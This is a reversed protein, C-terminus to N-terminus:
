VVDGVQEAAGGCPQEALRVDAGAAVAAGSFFQDLLDEL